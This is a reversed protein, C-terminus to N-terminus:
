FFFGHGGHPLKRTKSKQLLVAATNRINQLKYAYAKRFVLGSIRGKCQRKYVDVDINKLNNERAGKIVIKDKQM